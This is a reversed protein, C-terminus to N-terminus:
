EKQEPESTAPEDESAREPTLKSYLTEWVAFGFGHESRRGTNRVYGYKALKSLKTHLEGCKSMGLGRRLDDTTFEFGQPKSTVWDAVTDIVRPTAGVM